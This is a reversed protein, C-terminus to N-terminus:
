ASNIFSTCSVAEFSTHFSAHKPNLGEDPIYKMVGNIDIKKFSNGLLKLITTSKGSGTPGMVLIVDKDEIQKKSEHSKKIIRELEFIDLICVNKKLIKLHDHLKLVDKTVGQINKM